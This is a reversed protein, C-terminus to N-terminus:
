NIREHSLIASKSPPTPELGLSVTKLAATQKESTFQEQTSPSLNLSLWGRFTSGWYVDKGPQNPEAGEEELCLM